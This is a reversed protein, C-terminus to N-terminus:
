SLGGAMSGASSRSPSDKLMMGASEVLRETQGLRWGLAERFEQVLEPSAIGSPKPPTIASDETQDCAWDQVEGSQILAAMARVAVAPQRLFKTQAIKAWQDQACFWQWYDAQPLGDSTHHCHHCLLHINGVTDPGGDWRPVIHARDLDSTWGCAFCIGNRGELRALYEATDGKGLRALEESWFAAVARYSPMNRNQAM